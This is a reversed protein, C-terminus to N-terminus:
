DNPLSHRQGRNTNDGSQGTGETERADHCTQKEIHPWIIRRRIERNRKQKDDDRKEGAIQGRTTCGFEVWQNSEGRLSAEGGRPEDTSRRPTM